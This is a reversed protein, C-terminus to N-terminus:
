GQGGLENDEFPGSARDRCDGCLGTNGSAAQSCVDRDSHCAVCLAAIALLVGGRRTRVADSARAMVMRGGGTAKARYLAVDAAELLDDGQADGAESSEAIGISVSPRETSAHDESQLDMSIRSSLVSAQAASTAPLLVAFEDGGLRAVPDITRANRSLARCVTVLARDGGGHGLTDNIAEIGDIGVCLVSTPHRHRRGRKLEETLRQEFYRRNFAGTLPDTISSVRVSDFRHGLASSAAPLSGGEGEWSALHGTDQLGQPM